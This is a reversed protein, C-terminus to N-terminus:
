RTVRHQLLNFAQLLLLNYQLLNIVQMVANILAMYVFAM